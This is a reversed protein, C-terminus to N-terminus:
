CGMIEHNNTLTQKRYWIVDMHGISHSTTRIHSVTISAYGSQDTTGRLCWVASSRRRHLSTQQPCVFLSETRWRNGFREICVYPIHGRSVSPISGICPCPSTSHCPCCSSRKLKWVGPQFVISTFSESFLYIHSYMATYYLKLKLLAPCACVTVHFGATLWDTMRKWSVTELGILLTKAQLWETLELWPRRRRPFSQVNLEGGGPRLPRLMSDDSWWM